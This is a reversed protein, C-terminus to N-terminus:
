TYRLPPRSHVGLLWGLTVAVGSVWTDDSRVPEPAAPAVGLDAWLGDGLDPQGTAVAAALMMEARAANETPYLWRCTVPTVLDHDGDGVVWEFTAACARAFRSRDAIRAAFYHCDRVDETPVTVWAPLIAVGM